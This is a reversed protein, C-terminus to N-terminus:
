SRTKQNKIQLHFCRIKHNPDLATLPPLSARCADDTWPCTQAYHCGQDLMSSPKEVVPMPIVAPDDLAQAAMLSRTYPHAPREFVAQVPGTEVFVGGLMVAVHHAIARVTDLDHSIYLYSVGQRKQFDLFLDLVHAQVSRDLSAVPEDAIVLEPELSMARALGIRQRQGGSLEFPHRDLLDPTLNVMDLLGAVAHAAQRRSQGHLRLPEMLLSRVTLGPNLSGDADQFVMQLSRRLAKRTWSGIDRGKFVVEGRDRFVLGAALRALTTKGSGSEGVVALTQGPLIILSVDRVARIRHRFILGSGFTKALGRIAM